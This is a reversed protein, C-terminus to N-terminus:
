KSTDKQQCPQGKGADCRLCTGQPAAEGTTARCPMARKIERDFERLRALNREYPERASRTM